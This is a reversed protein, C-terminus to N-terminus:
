TAEKENDLEGEDRERENQEEPEEGGEEPEDEGAESEPEERVPRDEEDPSMRWSPGALEVGGTADSWAAGLDERTPPPFDDPNLRGRLELAAASTVRWLEDRQEKTLEGDGFLYMRAQGGYVQFAEWIAPDYVEVMAQLQKWSTPPALPAPGETRREPTSAVPKADGGDARLNGSPAAEPRDGSAPEARGTADEMDQTFVDSAATANLVAAVLARKDAMKLVTNWSDPLEPNDIQGVTQETIRADDEFFKAGCGGQKKWCLWGGGYEEKGKIITEQGCDPCVRKANRYAYKSEKTSCLGEGTGVVLRTPIHELTCKSIVTLHDDGHWVKESEYHPALRLAVNIAEAGPKLLSPRDTGPIVGYHVDATMVRKMVEIIKNKQAVVEDVSLEARTMIAEHQRVAPLDPLQELVEGEITEMDTM